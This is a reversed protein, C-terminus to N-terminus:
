TRALQALAGRPDGAPEAQLAAVPQRDHEVVPDLGRQEVPRRLPAPEDEHREGPAEGLGLEVVADVVAGGRDHETLLSGSGSPGSSGPASSRSSRAM